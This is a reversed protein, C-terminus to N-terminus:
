KALTAVAEAFDRAQQDLKLNSKMFDLGNGKQTRLYDDRKLNDKKSKTRNRRSNVRTGYSSM